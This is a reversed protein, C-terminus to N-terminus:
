IGVDRNPKTDHARYVEGRGGSGLLLVVEYSGVRAGSQLTM